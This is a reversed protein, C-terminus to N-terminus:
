AKKHYIDICNLCTKKKKKLQRISSFKNKTVLSCNVATLTNNRMAIASNRITYIYM